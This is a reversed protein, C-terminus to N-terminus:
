QGQAVSFGPVGDLVQLREVHCWHAFSTIRGMLTSLATEPLTDQPARSAFRCRWHNVFDAQPVPGPYVKLGRNSIMALTLPLDAAAARMCAALQDPAGDFEVFIDVGADSRATPATDNLQDLSSSVPLSVPRLTRGSNGSTSRRGLNSIIRDTFAATSGPVLGRPAALDQPLEKGVELTVFLAQEIRQATVLWGAQRLMMIAAQLLATPNATGKGAIDPASGHVAEFMALDRGMNASPALGLGGVLGATLDSIIDGNMNTTCIVDFDEPSMVLRHALNDIILHDAAVGPHAAAVEEFSSKFLGETLKMINAKSACTVRKRGEAQAVAFAAEAIKRSGTRSILKLCQAVDPTQMHEIGAYLDEVNERVVVLDIDRDAYPTVVGPLRRAPRINAYLEFYKRLTVNASKGGSGIGTELPGKLVLGAGAIADITDQPLGNALPVSAGGECETWDMRAGAAAMVRQVAEMIEPGIGDGPLAVARLRRPTSVVIRPSPSPGVDSAHHGHAPDLATQLSM